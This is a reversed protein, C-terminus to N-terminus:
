FSRRMAWYGLTAVVLASILLVISDGFVAYPPLPGAVPLPSDLSARVNMGVMGIVRGSSDIVASIGNNAARILPLGEEVARVRAQHFHQRPGTTNGFWGDNTVNVLVGPRHASAAGVGPFIAEYCILGGVPPLGPVALVPRPTVGESFGGRLRTLQQLGIAELTTQWPLYEGFPVLHTKDYISSLVGDANIVMLSNFARRASGSGLGDVPAAERRLAGTLLSVNDPLLTGIAAMAEPHELPLFPMAAEPWVLHTTRALDDLRGAADTRSLDLHDQFITVQKEARWKDRQSISPQVIRLRVGDVSGTPATALKWGGYGSLVALPVGTLLVVALVARRMYAGHSAGLGHPAGAAMVLPASFLPVALLTLGYIGVLGAGQMLPLPWTLAYGIINWPFGTLVHGRLWEAATLALALVLLREWGPRWALVAAAAAAAWFLALGAPMLTVAFPLLWGFTEAEVLFAEGIWFLGFLFYGFGFWWGAWAAARVCEGRHQSRRAADDLLWVLVPLTLFLVPSFFFPALALNSLAGALFALGWRRWGRAASIRHHLGGILDRAAM